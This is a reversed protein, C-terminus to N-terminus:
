ADPHPPPPHTPPAETPNVFEDRISSPGQLARVKKRGMAPRSIPTGCPMMSHHFRRRGGRGRHGRPLHTSGAWHRRFRQLPHGGLYGPGPRGFQENGHVRAPDASGVQVDAFTVEGHVTVPHSGAVLHHPLDDLDASGRTGFELPPVPPTDGPQTGGAPHALGEPPARPLRPALGRFPVGWKM